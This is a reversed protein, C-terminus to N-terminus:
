VNSSRMFLLTTSKLTIHLRHWRRHFKCSFNVFRSGCEQSGRCRVVHDPRTVDSKLLTNGENQKMEYQLSDTIFSYENFLHVFSTRSNSSTCATNGSQLFNGSNRSIRIRELYNGPFSFIVPFEAFNLIKSFRCFCTSFITKITHFLM